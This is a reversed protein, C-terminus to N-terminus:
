IMLFICLEKVSLNSVSGMSPSLSLVQLKGSQKSNYERGAEASGHKDAWLM